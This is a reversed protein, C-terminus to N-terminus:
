KNKRDDQISIYIRPRLLSSILFFPSLIFMFGLVVAIGSIWMDFVYNIIEFM